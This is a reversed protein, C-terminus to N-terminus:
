LFHLWTGKYVHVVLFERVYSVESKHSIVTLHKLLLVWKIVGPILAVSGSEVAFTM